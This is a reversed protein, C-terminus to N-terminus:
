GCEGEHGLSRRCRPSDPRWTTPLGCPPDDPIRIAASPPLVDLPVDPAPLLVIGPENRHFHRSTMPAPVTIPEGDQIRYWARLARNAVVCVLGLVILGLGTLVLVVPDVTVTM